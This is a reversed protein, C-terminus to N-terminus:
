LGYWALVVSVAALGTVVTWYYKFLQEIRLRATVAHLLSVCVAVLVVCLLFLILIELVLGIAGAAAPSLGSLLTMVGGGIGGLFLAVFLSTMTLLKVAHSLKYVALPAGSYEALMGECIETEAEAADFPHSGTEGPIILLMAAAAPLMSLRTLLSGNAIQYNVIDTLSFCLGTGLANGVTKAVALLVLVLPLEVSLVTVMERSLGVGAYPSGSSAAGLIVSLAPILLLYLIVIVDAVGRFANFHFVPIFLQLVVQAALGVLPALLFVTRNAAAPVITEKGLLKFFDYFPQLIPPGIRKQMRAVLKRDIGCLLMGTLFCFLFGPFILIYALYRLGDM